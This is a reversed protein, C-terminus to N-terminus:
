QETEIQVDGIADHRKKLVARRNQLTIRAADFRRHEKLLVEVARRLEDFSRPERILFATLQVVANVRSSCRTQVEDSESRDFLMWPVRREFTKVLRIPDRDIEIWL